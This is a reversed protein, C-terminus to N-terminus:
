SQRRTHHQRISPLLAETTEPDLGIGEPVGAGAIADALAEEFVARLDDSTPERSLM